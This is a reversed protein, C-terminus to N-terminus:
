QVKIDGGKLPTLGSNPLSSPQPSVPTYKISIGFTDTKVKKGSGGDYFSITYTVGAKALAWDGLGGNLSADWWYLDGVGGATGVGTSSKVYTNLTGKLKWKGNNMLLLNGKYACNSTCKNDAKRVNFGLNVRGSSSLTYWGGGTASNGPAAATLTASDSSPDCSSTGAFSAMIIYIGEQWGTTSVSLTSQGSSNTTASGLSYPGASGNLPNVDLSFSIMQGGVCASSPSSLLAGAQFSSGIGAVQGGNYLLTTPSSTVYTVTNDASTSATNDNGAADKAAAAPISAIVTGGATMGSVTVDYTTGDNPAVETVSATTAGATGSLALDSDTFGSVSESFVATFHIPSNTTPDAQGSAQEITVSPPTTDPAEYAGIDCHPGQPRPEGRQDLNNVPAAACTADDGADIAPSGSQLAMTETPGGNDALADLMPDGPVASAGCSPTFQTEILNNIQNVTGYSSCDTGVPAISNALISNKLDVSGAEVFLAGAISPATYQVHNGPHAVNDSLTSNTISHASGSLIYIAGGNADGEGNFPCGSVCNVTNDGGKAQNASFTSNAISVTGSAYIAGGHGKGPTNATTFGEATNGVFTSNTVTLVNDNWIGGGLGDKDSSIGTATNGSFTSDTVNVTGGFNDVGGGAIKTSNDSFTSNTISLTGHDNIIGGGFISQNASFTSDTVTVLGADDNYIGGGDNAASNGSFTSATISVTAGENYIGGGYESTNGSFTSNTITLTGGDNYLQNYIAGGTGASNGSFTSDTITLTGGLNYIAGGFGFGGGNAITLANLNLIDGTGSVLAFVRFANNGSITVNAGSGDITLEDGDTDSIGDLIAVLTITGSVSFTITDNGSGPACDTSGSQDDNNANTIAERLDCTANADLNAPTDDVTSDVVIGAAYAVQVGSTGFALAFVLLAAMSIQLFKSVVVKFM